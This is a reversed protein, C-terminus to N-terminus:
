RKKFLVQSVTLWGDDRNSMWSKSPRCTSENTETAGVNKEAQHSEVLNTRHSSECATAGSKLEHDSAVTATM